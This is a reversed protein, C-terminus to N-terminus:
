LSTSDFRGVNVPSTFRPCDKRLKEATVGLKLLARGLPAFEERDILTDQGAVSDFLQMVELFNDPKESYIRGMDRWAFVFASLTLVSKKGKTFHCFLADISADDANLSQAHAFCSAEKLPVMMTDVFPRSDKLATYASPMFAGLCFLSLLVNKRM